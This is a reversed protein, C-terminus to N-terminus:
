FRKLRKLPTSCASGGGVAAAGPPADSVAPFGSPDFPRKPAVRDSAQSGADSSAGIDSASGARSLGAPRALMLSSPKVPSARVAAGSKLISLEDWFARPLAENKENQHNTLFADADKSANPDTNGVILIEVGQIFVSTLSSRALCTRAIAVASSTADHQHLEPTIGLKKAAAHMAAIDTHIRNHASVIGPLKGKVISHALNIDMGDATFAAEWSPCVAQSREISSNLIHVWSTLLEGQCRFAYHAMLDRWKRVMAIGLPLAWGSREIDLALPCNVELELDTICKDLSTLIAPFETLTQERAFTPRDAGSLRCMMKGHMMAALVCIDRVRCMIRLVALLNKAPM